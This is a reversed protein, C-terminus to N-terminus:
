LQLFCISSEAPAKLIVKGGGRVSGDEKIVTGKDPDIWFVKYRIKSHIKKTVKTKSMLKEFSIDKISVFNNISKAKELFKNLKNLTFTYFEEFKGVQGNQRQKNLKTELKETWKEITKYANKPLGRM